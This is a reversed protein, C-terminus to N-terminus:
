KQSCNRHLHYLCCLVLCPHPLLLPLQFCNIKKSASASQHFFNTPLPLSSPVSLTSFSSFASAIKEFDTAEPNQFQSCDNPYFAVIIIMIYFRCGRCPISHFPFKPISYPLHWFPIFHFIELISHFVMKWGLEM